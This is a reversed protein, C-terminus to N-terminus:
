LAVDQLTLEYRDRVRVARRIRLDRGHRDLLDMVADENCQCGMVIGILSGPRTRWTSDVTNLMHRRHQRQERALLRYEHEYAWVDSKTYIPVLYANEEDAYLPQAPFMNSYHVRYAGILEEVGADYELAIGRHNDGAPTFPLLRLTNISGLAMAQM